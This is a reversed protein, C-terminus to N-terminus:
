YKHVFCDILGDRQWPRVHHRKRWRGVEPRGRPGRLGNSRSVGTENHRTGGALVRGLSSKGSGQEGELVLLTDFKCGPQRIRRVGAILFIAGVARTFSTDEAQAYDVLWTDLRPVDWAAEFRALYERVPHMRYELALALVAENTFEATM